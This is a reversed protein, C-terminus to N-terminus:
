ESAAGTAANKISEGATVPMGDAREVVNEVLTWDLQGPRAATAVIFQETVYTLPDKEVVDTQADTTEDDDSQGHDTPDM